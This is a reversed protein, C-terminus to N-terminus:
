YACVGCRGHFRDPSRLSRFLASERYIALPDDDPVRGAALPLFGSPTVDGNAGIFMRGNGDRSGFSRAPPRPRAEGAGARSRMQLVVRRYHPAETTSVQFPWSGDHRALWRLLRECALPGPAALARARGVPVVFFLSWRPAGPRGGLKAPEALDEGPEDPVLTNRRLAIGAAVIHQAAALTWGFCGFVGRIRDHQAPTPGDLSLSMADVGAARLSQATTRSLAPTASPAVAADLGMATAYSVLHLLDPRKLPDGGTFVIHPRPSANALQDLVRICDEADLENA